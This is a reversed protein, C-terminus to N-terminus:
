AGTVGGRAALEDKFPVYGGRVDGAEESSGFPSSPVVPGREPPTLLRSGTGLSFAPQEVAAIPEM